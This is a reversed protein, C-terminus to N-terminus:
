ISSRDMSSYISSRNMSSESAKLGISGLDSREAGLEKGKSNRGGGGAKVMWDVILGSKGRSMRRIMHKLWGTKCCGCRCVVGIDPLGKKDQNIRLNGYGLLSVMRKIKKLM